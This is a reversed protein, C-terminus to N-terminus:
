QEPLNPFWHGYNEKLWRYFPRYKGGKLSFILGITVIESPYLHADTRKKVDLMKDDVIIFVRIIIEDTPMSDEMTNHSLEMM